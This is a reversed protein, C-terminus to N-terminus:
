RCPARTCHHVCLCEPCAASSACDCRSPVKMLIRASKMLMIYQLTRPHQPSGSLAPLYCAVGPLDAVLSVTLPTLRALPQLATAQNHWM